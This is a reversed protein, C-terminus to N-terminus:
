QQNIVEPLIAFGNSRAMTTNLSLKTNALPKYLSTAQGSLFGKQATWICWLEGAGMTTSNNITVFGVTPFRNGNLTVGFTNATSTNAINSLATATSSTMVRYGWPSPDYITKSSNNNWYQTNTTYDGDQGYYYIYPYAQLNNISSRQNSKHEEGLPSWPSRNVGINNGRMPNKNGWQFFVGRDGYLKTQYQEITHRRGTSSPDRGQQTFRVVVKRYLHTTDPNCYGIVSNMINYGSPSITAPSQAKVWIHWSWAVVPANTRSEGDSNTFSYNNATVLGIVANGEQITEPSVYFRIYNPVDGYTFTSVDTIISADQNLLAAGTITRGSSSMDTTININKFQQGAANLYSRSNLFGEMGKSGSAPAYYPPIAYWGPATIVYSNAARDYTGATQTSSGLIYPSTYSGVSTTSRLKKKHYSQYEPSASVTLTVTQDAVSGSNDELGSLWTPAESTWTAASPNNTDFDYSYDIIYPLANTSSSTGSTTTYSSRSTLTITGGYGSVSNSSFNTYFDFTNDSNNGITFNFTYASGRKWYIYDPLGITRTQADGGSVSYVIELTIGSLGKKPFMMLSSNNDTLYKGDSLTPTVTFDTTEDSLTWPYDADTWSDQDLSVTAKSPAGKVTVSKIVLSRGTNDTFTFKVPTLAHKFEQSVVSQNASVTTESAPALLLDPQKSPDTPLTLTISPLDASTSSGSLSIGNETSGYPSYALLAVKDGVQPWTLTTSFTGDSDKTVDLNYGTVNDENSMPLVSGKIASWTQSASYGYAFLGIDSMANADTVVSAKLNSPNEQPVFLHEEETIQLAFPISEGDPTVINELEVFVSSDAKFTSISAAKKNDTNSTEALQEPSPNISIYKASSTGNIKDADSSCAYFLSAGSAVLLARLWFASNKKTTM